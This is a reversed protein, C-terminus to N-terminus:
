APTLLQRAAHLDHEDDLVPLGPRLGHDGRRHQQDLIGTDATTGGNTSSCVATTSGARYLYLDYDVSLGNLLGTVAAGAPVTM